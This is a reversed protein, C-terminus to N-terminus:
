FIKVVIPSIYCTAETKNMHSYNSNEILINSDKQGGNLKHSLFLIKPEILDPVAFNPVSLRVSLQKPIIFKPVILCNKKPIILNPVILCM